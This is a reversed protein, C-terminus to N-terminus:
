ARPMATLTFARLLDAAYPPPAYLGTRVDFIPQDEPYVRLAPGFVAPAGAAPWADIVDVRVPRPGSSRSDITWRM